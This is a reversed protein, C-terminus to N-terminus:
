PHYVISDFNTFFISFLLEMSENEKLINYLDEHVRFDVAVPSTYVQNSPPEILGQIDNRELFEKSIQNMLYIKYNENMKIIFDKIYKLHSRGCYLIGRGEKPIKEAMYKDKGIKKDHSVDISLVNIGLRKAEKLIDFYNEDIRGQVPYDRKVLEKERDIVKQLYKENNTAFYNDIEAQLFNEIELCVFDLGVSNQLPSLINRAFRHM